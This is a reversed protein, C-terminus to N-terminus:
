LEKKIGYIEFSFAFWSGLQFCDGGMSMWLIDQIVSANGTKKPFYATM